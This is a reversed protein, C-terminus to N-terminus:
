FPGGAAEAGVTRKGGRGLGFQMLSISVNPWSVVSPAGAGVYAQRRALSSRLISLVPIYILDFLGM